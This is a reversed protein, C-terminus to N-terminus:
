EPNKSRSAELSNRLVSGLLGWPEALYRFALRRPETALRFAWELGLKGMWRPAMRKAGAIYDLTAGSPLIVNADLDNLNEHIWREQRPMGMGVFLIHPRYASIEAVVKANSASQYRADFHGHRVKLQVEPYRALLIEAGKAAAEPTSGLYFIRWGSDVAFPLMIPLWDNYAIRHQASIRHGMLRGLLVMSMGDALTYDTDDYFRRLSEADSPTGSHLCLSHLNHSAIVIKRQSSICDSVLDLLRYPTILDIKIGLFAITSISPSPVTTGPVCNASM